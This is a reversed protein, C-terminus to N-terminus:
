DIIVIDPLQGSGGTSNTVSITVEVLDGTSYVKKGRRKGVPLVPLGPNYSVKVKWGKNNNPHSSLITGEWFGASFNNKVVKVADGAAVYDAQLWFLSQGVTKLNTPTSLPKPNPM